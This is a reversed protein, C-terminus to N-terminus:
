FTYSLSISYSEQRYEGHTTNEEEEENDNLANDTSAIAAAIFTLSIKFGDIHIVGEIGYDATKIANFKAPQVDMLLYPWSIWPIFSFYDGLYWETILGTTGVDYRIEEINFDENKLIRANGKGWILVLKSKKDWTILTPIIYYMTRTEHIYINVDKNTEDQTGQINIQTLTSSTGLALNDLLGLAAFGFESSQILFDPAIDWVKLPPNEEKLYSFSAGIVGEGANIIAHTLPPAKVNIGAVQSLATQTTSLLIWFAFILYFTKVQFIQYVDSKMLFNPHM